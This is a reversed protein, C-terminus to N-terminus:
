KEGPKIVHINRWKGSRFRRVMITSFLLYSIVVIVWGFTASLDFVNLSLYLVPVFLWHIVVSVVMTYHTDGAGRLAGILAIMVAEVLVYLSAVRLMTIAMAVASEFVPDYESPHFVRVLQEPIFLFLVLVVASYFIGIKIASFASRNAASKLGAGMYRGVLSTVAIEIGLLPIFSALDWNFMVTTATAAVEGKAHFLTVMASFAVFNLFFELGAPTGYYVLKYMLKKSFHFSKMVAFKIRNNKGLYEILLVIVGLLSGMITALAAGKVGMPKIGFKGFILVYDLLVNAVMAVVTAVMVVKTRGIGTFYCSLTHRMMMFLSGWALVTLYETQLHIQNDPVGMYIFASKAWQVLFLIVPWAAITIIMAQFAVKTTAEKKGAGYYQAVLATSYGTLGIFFFMLVHMAVSGGLSANMEASGVRALLLRDTFTMIGDCASSVIMPFALYLLERVGGPTFTAKDKSIYQFM